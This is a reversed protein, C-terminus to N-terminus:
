RDEASASAAREAADGWFEGLASLINIFDEPTCREVRFPRHM